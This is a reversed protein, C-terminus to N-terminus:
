VSADSIKHGTSFKRPIKSIETTRLIFFINNELYNKYRSKQLIRPINNVIFPRFYIPVTVIARKCSRCRCRTYAISFYAQANNLTAVYWTEPSEFALRYGSTVAKWRDMQMHKSVRFTRPLHKEIRIQDISRRAQFVVFCLSLSLSWLAFSLGKARKKIKCFVRWREEFRAFFISNEQESQFIFNRRAFFLVHEFNKCICIYIYLLTTWLTKWLQFQFM